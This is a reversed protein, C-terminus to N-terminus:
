LSSDFSLGEPLSTVELSTAGTAEFQYVFQLGETATVSLPSTIVPPGADLRAIHNRTTNGTGGGLTTFAGGVVIKGDKQWARAEVANNAGSDFSDVDSQALTELTLSPLLILVAAVKGSFKSRHSRM